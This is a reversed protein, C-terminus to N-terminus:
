EGGGEKPPTKYAGHLALGFSGAAAAIVGVVIGEGLQVGYHKAVVIFALLAVGGVAGVILKALQLRIDPPSKM